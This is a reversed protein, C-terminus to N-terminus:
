RKVARALYLGPEDRIGPTSFGAERFLHGMEEPEPLRDRAVAPHAHHHRSLEDRSLLHAIVVEAGCKAVRAMERLADQKRAFHPFAAFCVVQDFQQSHFPLAMATARVCLLQSSAPKKRAQKLMQLSLDFAIVRGTEGVANLLSPHLIGTGTGMDLLCVGRRIHFMGVLPILRARVPDPYCEEEWTTARQDFYEVRPDM